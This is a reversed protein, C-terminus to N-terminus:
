VKLLDAAVQSVVNKSWGFLLSKLRAEETRYDKGWSTWETLASLAGYATGRLDDPIRPSEARIIKVSQLNSALQRKQEPFARVMIQEFTETSVDIKAMAEAQDKFADTYKAAIQLTEKAEAVKGAMDGRHRIRFTQTAAALAMAETNACVTRVPTVSAQLARSGDHSNTILLYQQYADDGLVLFDDLRATIWIRKGNFLSGATDVKADGNALMFDLFSFAETNQFAVYDGGVTGLLRGDLQRQIGWRDEAVKDEGQWKAYLSVKEVTWDLGAAKLAQASTKKGKVPTGMSHWPLGNDIDYMMTEVQHPM